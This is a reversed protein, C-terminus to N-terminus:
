VSSRLEIQLPQIVGIRTCGILVLGTQSFFDLFGDNDYDAWACGVGDGSDGVGARSTVDEFTGNGNNLYLINSQGHNVLYLDLLGDNNFDGWATGVGYNTDGVGAEDTVDTFTTQCLISVTLFVVLVATFFLIYNKVM